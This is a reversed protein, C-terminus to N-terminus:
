ARVWALLANLNDENWFDGGAKIMALMQEESETKDAKKDLMQILMGIM